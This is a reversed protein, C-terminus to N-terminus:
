IEDKEKEIVHLEAEYPIVETDKNITRTKGNELVVGLDDDIKIYFTDSLLSKFVTGIDLDNFHVESHVKIDEIIKM